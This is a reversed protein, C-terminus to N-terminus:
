NDEIEIYHMYVDELNGNSVDGIGAILEKSSGTCCIEGQNIIIIKDAMNEIDSVIHTSILIIKDKSLKEIYNRIRVREQPDVGATPEDLILINPNNLLAQALLIRQVMGGSMQKMQLNRHEYMNLEKLLQNVQKQAEVKKLGKLNAIYHLFAYATFDKYYGQQQPMFGLIERYKKGYKLIDKGNWLVDGSTRKINDTLINIMTSKGAGNPGLLGYIGNEFIYNINNLAKKEGYKKSVNKLELVNKEM